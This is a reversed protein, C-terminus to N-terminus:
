AAVKLGVANLLQDLDDTIRQYLRDLQSQKQPQLKRDGPVPRLLRATLPAYILAALHGTRM